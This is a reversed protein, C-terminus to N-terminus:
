SLKWKAKLQAMTGDQEMEDLAKQIEFLLEAKMKPVVIACNEGTGELISTAFQTSDQKEYFADVTSKATVFADARDSKIAMFGDAQTPLRIIKVEPINSVLSDATFGEIVIVKKGKLDDLTELRSNLNAKKFIVFPDNQVYPKTFNVRKAREDTVSMGAAVFDVRGMLVDPVLADFPMDKFKIERGLRKAIEKAVDIDFGVVQKNELFTFPPFEANTGVVLPSEAMLTATLCLLPILRKIM